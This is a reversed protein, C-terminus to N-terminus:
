RRGGGRQKLYEDLSPSPAQRVARGKRPPAAPPPTVARVEIRGISVRITPAPPEPEPLCTERRSSGGERGTVQHITRPVVTPVATQEGGPGDELRPPPTATPGSKAASLPAPQRVHVDEPAPPVYSPREPKPRRIEERAGRRASAREARYPAEFGEGPPQGDDAVTRVPDRSRGGTVVRPRASPPEESRTLGVGFGERATGPAPPRADGYSRSEIVADIPGPPEPQVLSGVDRRDKKDPVVAPRSPGPVPEPTAERTAHDPVLGSVGQTPPPQETQQTGALNQEEPSGGIAPFPGTPRDPPGPAFKPAVVPRVVPVTGMAREALRTVFDSM